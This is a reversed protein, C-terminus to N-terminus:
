RRGRNMPRVAFMWGSRIIKLTTPSHIESPKPGHPAATSEKGRSRLPFILSPSQPPVSSAGAPSKAAAQAAGRRRSPRSAGLPCSYKRNVPAARPERPQQHAGGLKKGAVGIASALLLAAWVRERRPAQLLHPAGSGIREQLSAPKAYGDIFGCRALSEIM